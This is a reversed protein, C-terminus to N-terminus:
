SGQIYMKPQAIMGQAPPEADDHVQRAPQPFEAEFLILRYKAVVGDVLRDQLLERLAMKTLEPKREPRSDLEELGNSRKACARLRGADGCVARRHVSQGIGSLAPLNGDHKGIQDTRGLQGGTHVRLVQALNNRGVLPADGLGHAAEASEDGFVHTVANEDIEAIRLSM